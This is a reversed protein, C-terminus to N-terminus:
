IRLYGDIQARAVLIGDANYYLVRRDLLVIKKLQDGVVFDAYFAVNPELIEDVIQVNVLVPCLDLSINGGVVEYNGNFFLITGDYFVFMRMSAWDLSYVDVDDFVYMEKFDAFRKPGVRFMNSICKSNSVINSRQTLLNEQVEDSADRWVYELSLIDRLEQVTDIDLELDNFNVEDAVKKFLNHINNILKEESM